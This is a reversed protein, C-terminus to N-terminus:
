LQIVGVPIALAIGGSVVMTNIGLLRGSADTLPGGSNGPALRIAAQVWPRRGLGSILGTGSVVGTTLAGTFGLPNGVAIVVEGSKATEVRPEIAALGFTGLRM